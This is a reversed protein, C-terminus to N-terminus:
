DEWKANQKAQFDLNEVVKLAFRKVSGNSYSSALYNLKAKAATINGIEAAKIGANLTNITQKHDLMKLITKQNRKIGVRSIRENNHKGYNNVIIRIAESNGILGLAYISSSHLKPDNTSESITKLNKIYEVGKGSKSASVVAYRITANDYNQPNILVSKLVPEFESDKTRRMATIVAGKVIPPAQPDQFIQLLRSNGKHSKNNLTKSPLSLLAYRRLFDENSSNEGVCIIA